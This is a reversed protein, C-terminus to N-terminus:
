SLSENGKDASQTPQETSWIQQDRSGVPSCASHFPPNLHILRIVPPSDRQCQHERQHNEASRIQQRLSQACGRLETDSNLSLGSRLGLARKKLKTLQIPLTTAGTPAPPATKPDITANM